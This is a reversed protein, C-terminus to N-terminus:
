AVTCYMVFSVMTHYHICDLSGLPSHQSLGESCHQIFIPLKDM